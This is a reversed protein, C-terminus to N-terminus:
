HRPESTGKFVFKWGQNFGQSNPRITPEDFTNTVVSGNPMSRITQYRAFPDADWYRLWGQTASTQSCSRQVVPAGTFNAYLDLCRGTAKNMLQQGEMPTAMWRWLQADTNAKIAAKADSSGSAALARDGSRTEIQYWRTGDSEALATAPVAAAAAIAALATACAIRFKTPM